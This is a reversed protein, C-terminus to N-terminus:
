SKWEMTAKPNLVKKSNSDGATGMLKHEMLRFIGTPSLADWRFGAAGAVVLVVWFVGQARPCGGKLAPM